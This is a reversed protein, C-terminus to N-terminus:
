GEGKKETTHMKGERRLRVWLASADDRLPPPDPWGLSSFLASTSFERQGVLAACREWFMDLDHMKGSADPWEFCGDTFLFLVTSEGLTLSQAQYDLSVVGLAPMTAALRQPGVADLLLVAPTHGANLFQMVGSDPYIDAAFMTVFDGEDGVFFRLQDNMLNFLGALDRGHGGRFRVMTRVMSMIFAARAGHGSVDAMVVRLGGDPLTFYDFYDGSAQASPLYLSQISLGPILPSTTPLLRRQLQAIQDIEASIAAYARRLDRTLRVQREAVGIRAVLESADIPKVLYDNAGENLALTMQENSDDATLVLIFLDNDAEIRRIRRIVELGGMRPMNMDLLCVEPRKRRYLELAEVGDQAMRLAYKEQLVAQLYLRIMESDDVILVSIPTDSSQALQQIM